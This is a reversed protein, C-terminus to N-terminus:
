ATQYPSAIRATVPSPASSPGRRGASTAASLGVLALLAAVLLASPRRCRCRPPRRPRRRRADARRADIRAMAAEAIHRHVVRNPHIEDFFARRRGQRRSCPNDDEDLCPTTTNRVGYRRPHTSCTTRVAGYINSRGVRAGDDRLAAIQDDLERNFAKTGRTASRGDAPDDGYKPIAGIDPLNLILFDRSGSRWCAPRSTASGSPWTARGVGRVGSSAPSTSSTTAAPGSRWWRGTASAPRRRAGRYRAAQM